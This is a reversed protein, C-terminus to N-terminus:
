QTWFVKENISKFKSSYNGFLRNFVAESDWVLFKLVLWESWQFSSTFLGRPICVKTGFTPPAPEKFIASNFIIQFRAPKQQWKSCTGSPGLFNYPLNKSITFDVPTSQIFSHRKYFLNNQVDFWIVGRHHIGLGGLFHKGAERLRTYEFSMNRIAQDRLARIFSVLRSVYIYHPIGFIHKHGQIM